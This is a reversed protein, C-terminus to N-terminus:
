LMAGGGMLLDLQGWLVKDMFLLFLSTALIIALSFLVIFRARFLASYMLLLKIDLMPGLVLFAMHSVVDFEVFSAALFADAESCLSMVFAAAMMIAPGVLPDGGWQFLSEQPIFTKMCSALFVGFLFYPTIELFDERVHFALDRWIGALRQPLSRKKQAIEIPILTAPAPEFAEAHILARRRGYHYFLLAVVIAVMVGGLGRLMPYIPDKYFALWTGMLVVPNFIPAALLYALTHPLPLGKKLLRRAVPVVGCECIPFLPSALVVAPIGLFGLRKAMNPLFGAPVFLEILASALTGMIMFPAAELTIAIFYTSFNERWRNGQSSQGSLIQEAADPALLTSLWPNFFLAVFGVLLLSLFLKDQTITSHSHSM